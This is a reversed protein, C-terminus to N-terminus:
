RALVSTNYGGWDSLSREKGHLFTAMGHINGEDTVIEVNVFM